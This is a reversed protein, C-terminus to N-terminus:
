CVGDMTRNQRMAQATSSVNPRPPQQIQGSWHERREANIPRGGYFGAFMSYNVVRCRFSLFRTVAPRFLRNSDTQSSPWQSTRGVLMSSGVVSLSPCSYWSWSREVVARSMRELLKRNPPSDCELRREDLIEFNCYDAPLHGCRGGRDLSEVVPIKRKAAPHQAAVARHGPGSCGDVDLAMKLICLPTAWM